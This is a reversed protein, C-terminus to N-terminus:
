GTHDHDYGHDADHDAFQAKCGIGWVRRVIRLVGSERGRDGRFRHARRAAFGQTQSCDHGIANPREKIM